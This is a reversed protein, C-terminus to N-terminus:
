KGGEIGTSLISVNIFDYDWVCPAQRGDLRRAMQMPTENRRHHNRGINASDVSSFPYGCDVMDMMRLGHIWVPNGIKNFVEIMRNHWKMAGVQAYEGSSGFCVREWSTILRKLRDLSENLHWVPAGRSGFPWRELLDDNQRETGDIVDPIVAWTTYFRLWPEVWEYYKEWDVEGGKTWLSFAGNDLMVSQGIEFVRGLDQPQSFSVCFHKGALTDLVKRPTIPTGHYHITM